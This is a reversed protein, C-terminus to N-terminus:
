ELWASLDRELMTSLRDIDARYHGVLERRVKPPIPPPNQLNRRYLSRYTRRRVDAPLVARLLKLLAPPPEHFARHLARSRPIGGVNYRESMEPQFAPDVGIFDFADRMVALAQEKFDEYLYIRLQERPFLDFYRELQEPYHGFRIYGFFPHWGDRMRRPEAELAQAFDAIPEVGERRLHLFNSYARDAPHRLIAILRADPIHKRINGPAKQNCLYNTSAEGLAREHQAESFLDMYSRLDTVTRLHAGPLGKFSIQEGEYSFFTPEKSPSIFVDPHQGLYQLMSTTGAKPAGIILFTPLRGSM